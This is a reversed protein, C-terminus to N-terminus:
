SRLMKFKICNLQCDCLNSVQTVKWKYLNFSDSFPVHMRQQQQEMEDLHCRIIYSLSGSSLPPPLPASCFSFCSVIPYLCPQCHLAPLCQSLFYFLSATHVSRRRPVFPPINTSTLPACLYSDMTLPWSLTRRPVFVHSPDYSLTSCCRSVCVSQRDRM